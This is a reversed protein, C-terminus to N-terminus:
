EKLTISKYFTPVTHFGDRWLVGHSADTVETYISTFNNKLKKKTDEQDQNRLLM